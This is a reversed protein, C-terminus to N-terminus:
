RLSNASQSLTTISIKRRRGPEQRVSRGKRDRPTLRQIHDILVVARGGAERNRRQFSFALGRTVPLIARSLRNQGGIHRARRTQNNTELNDLFITKPCGCSLRNQSFALPVAM